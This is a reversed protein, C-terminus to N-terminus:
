INSCMVIMQIVQFYLQHKSCPVHCINGESQILSIFILPMNKDELFFFYLRLQKNDTNKGQWPSYSIGSEIGFYGEFNPLGQLDTNMEKIQNRHGSIFM